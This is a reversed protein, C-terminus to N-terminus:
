SFHLMVERDTWIKTPLGAIYEGNPSWSLTRKYTKDRVFAKRLKHGFLYSYLISHQDTRDEEVLYVISKSDPAWSVNYSHYHDLGSVRKIERSHIDLMFLQAPHLDDSYIIKNGDPSWVFNGIDMGSVPINYSYASDMRSINIEHGTFSVRYKNDPSIVLSPNLEDSDLILTDKGSELLYGMLTHEGEQYQRYYLLKGDPRWSLRSVSPVQLTILEKSLASSESWLEIVWKDRDYQWYKLIAIPNELIQDPEDAPIGKEPETTSKCGSLSSLVIFCAAVFRILRM